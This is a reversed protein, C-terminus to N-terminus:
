FQLTSYQMIMIVSDSHQSHSALIPPRVKQTPAAPKLVLQFDARLLILNSVCEFEEPEFGVLELLDNQIADNSQSSSLLTLASREVSERLADDIAFRPLTQLVQSIREGLSKEAALPGRPRGAKSSTPATESLSPWLSQVEPRDDSEDESSSNSSSLTSFDSDQFTVVEEDGALSDLNFQAASYDPPNVIIDSGFLQANSLDSCEVTRASAAATPGSYVSADEDCLARICEPKLGRLLRSM